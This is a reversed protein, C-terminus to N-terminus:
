YTNTQRENNKEKDQSEIFLRYEKVCMLRIIM